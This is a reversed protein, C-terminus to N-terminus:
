GVGHAHLLAATCHDEWRQALRTIRAELAAVAVNQPAQEKARVLYHIRAQASDTLMPTFEISQGDLAAMLENGIRVRLETNFRERPVYVLASTFRGYPDRRLLLRPRQREQLRLIALAHETLTPTDM